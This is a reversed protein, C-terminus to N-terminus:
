LALSSAARDKFDTVLSSMGFCILVVDNSAARLSGSSLVVEASM